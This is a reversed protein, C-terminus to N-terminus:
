KDSVKEPDVNSGGLQQGSLKEPAVARAFQPLLRYLSPPEGLNELNCIPFLGSGPDKNKHNACYDSQIVSGLVMEPNDELVDRKIREHRLITGAKYQKHM